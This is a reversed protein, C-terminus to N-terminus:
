KGKRQASSSRSGLREIALHPWSSLSALPIHASTIFVMEMGPGYFSGECEGMSETERMGQSSSSDPFGTSFECIQPGLPPHLWLVSAAQAM